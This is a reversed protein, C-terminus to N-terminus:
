PLINLLENVIATAAQPQALKQINTSLQQQRATDAMLSLAAPYLQEGAETDKVLLAADKKVLAMANKTQHDEAAFPEGHACAIGLLALPFRRLAIRIPGEM